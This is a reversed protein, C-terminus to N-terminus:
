ESGGIKENEIDTVSEIIINEGITKEIDNLPQYDLLAKVKDFVNQIINRVMNETIFLSFPMPILAILKEICYKMKENGNQYEKEAELILKLAVDKLQNKRILWIIYVCIAILIVILSIIEVKNM